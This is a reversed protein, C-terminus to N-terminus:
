TIPATVPPAPVPGTPGPMTGTITVQVTKTFTDMADAWVGAAVDFDETPDLLSIAAASATGPSSVLATLELNMPALPTTIGFLVGTWFIVLADGLIDGLNKAAQGNTLKNNNVNLTMQAALIPAAGSKGPFGTPQDTSIDYADSAYSEYADFLSAAFINESASPPDEILISKIDSHLSTKDLAM